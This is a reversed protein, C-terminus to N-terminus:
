RMALALLRNLIPSSNIKGAHISIQLSTKPSDAALFIACTGSKARLTAFRISSIAASM